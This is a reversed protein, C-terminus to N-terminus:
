FITTIIQYPTSVIEDESLFGLQYFQNDGWMYITDGLNDSNQDTLVMSDRGGLSVDIINGGWNDKQDPIIKTPTSKSITTEDGLQGKNNYGWMYLTDAYGDLNEDTSVALADDKIELNIINKDVFFTNQIPFNERTDEFYGNGIQGESAYGWIYLTDGIHDYNTDVVVGTNHYDTDFDVIDGRWDDEREPIIKTPYLVPGHGYYNYVGTGWMYLTDSYGDYNGDVTAASTISDLDLDIINGNWGGRGEPAIEQPYLVYQDEGETNLGNQGNGNEGGINDGWSYFTDAYGDYDTDIIVSTNYSGLSLDIINGNWNDQGEPTIKIPDNLDYNGYTGNGLQAHQNNGWMYLTDAYGDYDIDVTVGASLYSGLELNILNGNWAFDFKTPESNFNGWIYVFDGYGDLDSDLIAGTWTEQASIDIIVGNQGEFNTNDKNIINKNIPIIGLLPILLIGYYKKM